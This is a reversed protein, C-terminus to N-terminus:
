CPLQVMDPYACDACCVAKNGKYGHTPKKKCVCKKYLLCMGDFKHKICFREGHTPWAWNGTKGCDFCTKAEYTLNADTESCHKKCFMVQDRGFQARRNCGPETCLKARVNVMDPTMHTKCFRAPLTQLNYTAEKNCGAAKCLMPM